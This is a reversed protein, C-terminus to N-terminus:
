ADLYMEKVAAFGHAMVVTPLPTHADDPLYRWGRLRTGEANFAIDRHM